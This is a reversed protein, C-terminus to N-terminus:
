WAHMIIEKEEKKNEKTIIVRSKSREERVFFLVFGLNASQLGHLVEVGEDKIAM